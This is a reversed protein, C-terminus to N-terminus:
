ERGISGILEKVDWKRSDKSSCGNWFTEPGNDDIVYRGDDRIGKDGPAIIWQHMTEGPRLGTVKVEGVHKTFEQAADGMRVSRMFPITIKGPIHHDALFTAADRTKLFYRTMDPHTLTIPEHNKIRDLDMWKHFVSGSSGILNGLRVVAAGHRLAIKEGMLKTAGYAGQPLCAKDSSVFVMPVEAGECAVAVAGTTYVNEIMASQPNTECLDVHKM